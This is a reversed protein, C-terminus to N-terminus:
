IPPGALRRVNPLWKPTVRSNLFRPRAVRRRCHSKTATVAVASLRTPRHLSLCDAQGYRARDLVVLVTQVAAQGTFQQDGLCQGKHSM